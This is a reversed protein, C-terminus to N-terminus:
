LKEQNAAGCILLEQNAAAAIGSHLPTPRIDGRISAQLLEAARRQFASISSKRNPADTQLSDVM